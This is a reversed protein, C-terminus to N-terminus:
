ADEAADEALASAAALFAFVRGDEGAFEQAAGDVTLTTVGADDTEISLLM